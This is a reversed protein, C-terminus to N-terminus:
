KLVQLKKARKRQPASPETSKGANMARNIRIYALQTDGDCEVALLLAKVAARWEPGDHTAQHRHSQLVM